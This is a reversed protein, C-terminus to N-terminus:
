EAQHQWVSSVQIPPQADPVPQHVLEAPPGIAPDGPFRQEQADWKLLVQVKSILDPVKDSGKAATGSLWLVAQSLIDRSLGGRGTVWGKQRVIAKIADVAGSAALRKDQQAAQRQQKAADQEAKESRKKRRWEAVKQFAQEGTLGGELFWLQASSM